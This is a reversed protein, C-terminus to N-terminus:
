YFNVIDTLCLTLLRGGSYYNQLKKRRKNKPNFMIMLAKRKKGVIREEEDSVLDKEGFDDERNSEPDDLFASAVSHRHVQVEESDKHDSEDENSRDDDDCKGYNEMEGDSNQDKSSAEIVSDDDSM